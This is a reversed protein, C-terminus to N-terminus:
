RIADPDPALPGVRQATHAPTRLERLLPAVKKSKPRAAALAMLQMSGRQM